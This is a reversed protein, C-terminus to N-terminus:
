QPYGGTQRLAEGLVLTSALAVNISRADAVMPVKVRATCYEHVHAPVGVSERGAILVDGAQFQFDLFSGSAKTSMLILRRGTSAKKFAEWSNHRTLDLHDLYDMGARRLNKDSLIFGCPEIVDMPINLCVCLRMMTGTNQPIDPEFLALRM